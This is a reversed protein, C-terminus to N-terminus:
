TGTAQEVPTAHLKLVDRTKQRFTGPTTGACTRFVKCFHSENQFGLEYAIEKISLDGAVLLRQAKDVILRNYYVHPSMSSVSNKFLQIFRSTSTGIDACIEALSFKSKGRANMYELTRVMQWSPLQRVSEMTDREFSPRLLGRFLHVLIQLVLSDVVLEYGSQRQDIEHILEEVLAVLSPDGMKDLFLVRNHDLDGPFRMKALIEKLSRVPIHLTLGRAEVGRAGYHGNHVEGPNIVLVDGPTLTEIRGRLSYALGPTLCFVINYEDHTHPLSDMDGPRYRFTHLCIGAERSFWFRTGVQVTGREGLM